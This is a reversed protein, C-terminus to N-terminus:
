DNVVAAPAMEGRMAALHQDKEQWVGNLWLQFQRKFQKDNVYDGRLDPTIAIEEIRVRIRRMRGCLLDRFPEVPSDPYDLTTRARCIVNLCRFTKVQTLHKIIITEM